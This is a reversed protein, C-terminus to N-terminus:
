STGIVYIYRSPEAHRIQATAARQSPTCLTIIISMGTLIIIGNQIIGSITVFFGSYRAKNRDVQTVGTTLFM